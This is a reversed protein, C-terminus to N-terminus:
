IMMTRIDDLVQYAQRDGMYPMHGSEYYKIESRDLPLRSRYLVNRANGANCMMDYWGVVFLLKMNKNRRMAKELSKLPPISVNFDWNSEATPDYDMYEEGPELGFLKRFQDNFVIHVGAFPLNGPDMFFDYEESLSESEQAFRADYLGIYRGEGAMGSAAYDATSVALGDSMIKEAPLGTFYSVREAVALRDEESIRRGRALATLYDSYAFEECEHEFEELSAAIQPHWYYNACAIATIDEVAKPVAQSEAGMGYSLYQGVLIVGSAHISPAGPSGAYLREAVKAARITGYSEGLLYIPSNWRDHVTLWQRITSVAADADHDTSQWYQKAGPIYERCFGTGPPDYMVLDCIDLLCHESIMTEYPPEVSMGAGEGTIIKEPALLGVHVFQSSVGPGGNWAFLVPRGKTEVGKRVYSFTWTSIEPGDTSGPREIPFSEALRIYDINEGNLEVSGETIIQKKEFVGM